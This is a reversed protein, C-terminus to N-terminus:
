TEVGYDERLAKRIQPITLAGCMVSDRVSKLQKSLREMMESEPSFESCFAWLFIVLAHSVAKTMSEQSPIYGRKKSKGSM